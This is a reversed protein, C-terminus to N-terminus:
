KSSIIQALQLIVTVHCSSTISAKGEFSVKAYWIMCYFTSRCWAWGLMRSSNDEANWRSVCRKTHPSWGWDEVDNLGACRDTWLPLRWSQVYYGGVMPFAKSPWRSEMLYQLKATQTLTRVKLKIGIFRLAYFHHHIFYEHVKETIYIPM